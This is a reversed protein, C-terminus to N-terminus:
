SLTEQVDQRRGIPAPWRTLDCGRILEVPSGRWAIAWPGVGGLRSPAPDRQRGTAPAVQTELRCRAMIDLEEPKLFELPAVHVTQRPCAGSSPSPPANNRYIHASGRTGRLPANDLDIDRAGPILVILRKRAQADGATPVPVWDIEGRSRIPLDSTDGLWPAGKLEGHQLTWTRPRGLGGGGAVKCIREWSARWRLGTRGLARVASSKMAM